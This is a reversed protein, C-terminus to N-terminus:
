AGLIDRAVDALSRDGEEARRLMTAAAVALRGDGSLTRTARGILERERASAEIDPAADSGAWTAFRERAADLGDSLESLGAPKPIVQFIPPEPVPDPLDASGLGTLLAVPTPALEFLRIAADFGSCRPMRYDLLALDVPFCAALAIAEEGDRAVDLVRFGLAEVQARLAMAALPEDEALLLLPPPSGDSTV